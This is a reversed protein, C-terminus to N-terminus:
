KDDEHLLAKLAEDFHTQMASQAADTDQAIIADLIVQHITQVQEYSEDTFRHQLGRLITDRMADRLSEVLYFIMPNQSASAIALHFQVDQEAFAEPQNMHQRMQQLIDKLTAIDNETRRTASLLVSQIELGRRVEILDQFSTSKLVIAREFFKRLMASSVPKIVANRGTVIEIIGEGQLTKLAERIVPRSVGFDEALQSESPLNDGPTLDQDDIFDILGQTVQESLTDRKVKQIM